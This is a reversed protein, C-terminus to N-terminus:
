AQGESRDPLQSAELTLGKQCGCCVPSPLAGPSIRSETHLAGCGGSLQQDIPSCFSHTHAHTRTCTHAHTHTRTHAHTHTCTHTHMHAYTLFPIPVHVHIHTYTHMFGSRMPVCTCTKHVHRYGGEERGGGEGVSIYCGHVMVSQGPYITGGIIRGLPYWARDDFWNHFQYFGQETLYRTTRYNFYSAPFLFVIFSQVEFVLYAITSDKSYRGPKDVGKDVATEFAFNIKIVSM